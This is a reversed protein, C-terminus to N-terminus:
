SEAEQEGIWIARMEQPSIGRSEAARKVLNDILELNAEIRSGIIQAAYGGKTKGHYAAWCKLNEVEDVSLVITFAIKKELM